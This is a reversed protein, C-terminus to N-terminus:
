LRNSLQLLVKTKPGKKEILLRGEKKWPTSSHAANKELVPNLGLSKAAKAITELSPKEVAHKQSIRRGKLRSLSGDFYSPYIVLQNDDRSVM